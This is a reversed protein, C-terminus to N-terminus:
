ELASLSSTVKDVLQQLREDTQHMGSGGAARDVQIGNLEMQFDDFYFQIIM